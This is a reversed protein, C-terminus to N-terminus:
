KSGTIYAALAEIDASSLHDYAPMTSYGRVSRPDRLFGAVWVPDDTGERSGAHTLDPGIRQHGLLVPTEHVYDGAVSVPGLGVDTVIPRVVQTHCYWCGQQIYVARGAAQVSGAPYARWEDARITAEASSTELAPVVLVFAAAVAFLAVAGTVLRGHSVPELLVLEPDPELVAEVTATEPMAGRRRLVTAVFLLQALTFVVLGVFAVVRVEDLANITNRWGAGVTPVAAENAAAVWTWGATLGAVLSAVIWTLLGLVTGFYHVRAVRGHVASGLIGPATVYVYAILWATFAGYFGTVEVARVWDTYQTLGSSGRFALTLNLVPWVLFLVAGLVLFRVALYGEVRQWRGRMALVVDTVIVLPPVLLAISFMVGITGLWDPTPGFSLDAPATFAWVFALSWFGILSLRTATFAPRGALRPILHYVVAVGAAALWLGTISARFFAVQIAGAVGSIGPINGVIFALLFWWVATVAYWRAPGADASARRAAVTVSRAVVLMGLVIVADAWLPYELYRRAEGFGLAVGVSGAVVGLALVASGLKASREDPTGGGDRTVAHILAGALGITLWGYLFMDVAIPASVGYGLPGVGNPFPVILQIAAVAGVLLSLVLFVLSALTYHRTAPADPAAPEEPIVPEEVVEATIEEPDNAPADATM